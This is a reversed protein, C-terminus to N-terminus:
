GKQAGSAGDSSSSGLFGQMWEREIPSPDYAFVAHGKLASTTRSWYRPKEVVGHFTLEATVYYLWVTTKLISLATDLGEDKRSKYPRYLQPETYLKGLHVFENSLLGYMGGFPPLVMKASSITKSSELDGNLFRGLDLPRIGLHLVTAIIELANRAVIGM